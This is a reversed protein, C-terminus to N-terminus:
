HEAEKKRDNLTSLANDLARRLKTNDSELTQRLTRERRAIKEAVRQGHRAHRMVSIADKVVIRTRAHSQKESEIVSKQAIVLKQLKMKDSQLRVVMEMLQQRSKAPLQERTNAVLAQDELMAERAIAIANELPNGQDETPLSDGGANVDLEDAGIDHYEVLEDLSEMQEDMSLTQDLM